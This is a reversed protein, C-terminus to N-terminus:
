TVRNPSVQDVDRILALTELSPAWVQDSENRSVSSSPVMTRPCGRAVAACHLVMMDMTANLTNPHGHVVMACSDGVLIMDIGADNIQKATPYDYATLMTITEGKDRMEQITKVVKLPNGDSSASATVHVVLAADDAGGAGASWDSLIQECHRLAAVQPAKEGLVPQYWVPFDVSQETMM